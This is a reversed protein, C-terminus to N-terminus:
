DHPRKIFCLFPFFCLSPEYSKPWIHTQSHSHWCCINCFSNIYQATTTNHKYCRITTNVDLRMLSKYSICQLENMWVHQPPFARTHFCKSYIISPSFLLAFSRACFLARASVRFPLNQIGGRFHTRCKGSSVPNRKFAGKLRRHFM